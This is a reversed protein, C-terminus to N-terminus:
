ARACRTTATCARWPRPCACWARLSACPSATLRRPAQPCSCLALRAGSSDAQRLRMYERVLVVKAANTIQPRLTRAFKIYRQIQLTTLCGMPAAGGGYHLGSAFCRRKFPPSQHHTHRHQLGRGAILPTQSNVENCEDLIVFFLDFRSMIPATM